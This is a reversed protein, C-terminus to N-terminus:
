RSEISRVIDGLLESSIAEICKDCYKAHIKLEDETYDSVKLEKSVRAGCECCNCIVLDDIPHLEIEM